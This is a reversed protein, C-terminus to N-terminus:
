EQRQYQFLSTGRRKMIFHAIVLGLCIGIAIMLFAVGAVAGGPVGKKGQKKGHHDDTPKVTSPNDPSTADYFFKDAKTKM